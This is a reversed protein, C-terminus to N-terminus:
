EEEEEDDDDDDADFEFRSIGPDMCFSSSYSIALDRPTDARAGRALPTLKVEELTVVDLRLALRLLNSSGSRRLLAPFSKAM